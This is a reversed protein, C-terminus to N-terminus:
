RREGDNVREREREPETARESVPVLDVVVLFSSGLEGGEHDDDEGDAAATAGAYDDDGV